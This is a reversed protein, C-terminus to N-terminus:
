KGIRLLREIISGEGGEEEAEEIFEVVKGTAIDASVEYVKGDRSIEAELVDSEREVEIIKYGQKKLSETLEAKTKGVYDGSSLAVAANAFVMMLAAAAVSALTQSTFGSKPMPKETNLPQDVGTRNAPERGHVVSDFEPGDVDAKSNGSMM